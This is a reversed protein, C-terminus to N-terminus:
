LFALREAAWYLGTMAIAASAPRAIRKSYEGHKWWIAVLAYAVGVVALQGVEIGVNFSFMAPLFDDQSLTNEGFAHAFGLGHILGFGFVWWPRWRSLRKSLLNEVAVFVISLAIAVEVWGSTISVGGFMSLGLTLSHALTFLTMQFLLVAFNRTLFFLGLIFLMHDLGNPLIHTFGMVFFRPIVASATALAILALIFCRTM